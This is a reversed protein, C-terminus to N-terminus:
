DKIAAYVKTNKHLTIELDSSRPAPSKQTTRHGHFIVKGNHVSITLSGIYDSTDEATLGAVTDKGKWELYNTGFDLALDL